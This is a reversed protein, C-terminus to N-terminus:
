DIKKGMLLKRGFELFVTFVAGLLMALIYLFALGFFESLFYAIFFIIVYMIVLMVIRQIWSKAKSFGIVLDTILFISWISICSLILFITGIIYKNNFYSYGSVFFVFGLIICLLGVIRKDM